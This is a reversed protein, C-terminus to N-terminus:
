HARKLLGKITFAVSEKLPFEKKFGKVYAPYGGMTTYHDTQCNMAVWNFTMKFGAKNAGPVGHGNAKWLRGKQDYQEGWYLLFGGGKEVPTADLYMVRKSYAYEPDNEQLEIVWQPKIEWEVKVM